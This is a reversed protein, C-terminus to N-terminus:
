AICDTVMTYNMNLLLHFSLYQLVWPPPPLDTSSFGYQVYWLCRVLMRGGKDVDPPASQRWLPHYACWLWNQPVYDIWQDFVSVVVLLMSLNMFGMIMSVFWLMQDCTVYAFLWYGNLIESKVILSFFFVQLPSCNHAIFDVNSIGCMGSLIGGGTALVWHTQWCLPPYSVWLWTQTALCPLVCVRVRITLAM